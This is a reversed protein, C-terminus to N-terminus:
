EVQFIDQDFIDRFIYWGSVPLLYKKVQYIKLFLEDVMCLELILYQSWGDLFYFFLFPAALLQYFWVHVCINLSIAIM